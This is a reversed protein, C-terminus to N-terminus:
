DVKQLKLVTIEETGENTYAIEMTDYTLSVLTRTTEVEIPNGLEDQGMTILTLTSAERTYTGDMSITECTNDIYHFDSFAFTYDANLTLNDVDCEADNQYPSYLIVNDEDVTGIEVPVWKGVLYNPAEFNSDDERECSTIFVSSAALLSIYLFNKM